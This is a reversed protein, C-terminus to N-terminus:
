TVSRGAVDACSTEGPLLPRLTAQYTATGDTWIGPEATRAAAKVRALDRGKLLLCQGASTPEGAQSLSGLPWSAADPSPGDDTQHFVAALARYRYPVSPTALSDLEEDLACLAQHETCDRLAPAVTTTTMGDLEYSRVPGDPPPTPGLTGAHPLGARSATRVVGLVETRSLRAVRLGPLASHRAAPSTVLTGDGYLALRPVAAATGPAFGPDDRVRLVLDGSRSPVDGDGVATRSSSPPSTTGGCAAAGMTLAAALALAAAPARAAALARHPRHGLAETV